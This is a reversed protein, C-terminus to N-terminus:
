TFYILLSITQIRFFQFISIKINIIVQFINFVVTHPKIIKKTERELQEKTKTQKIKIRYDKEEEDEDTTACDYNSSM